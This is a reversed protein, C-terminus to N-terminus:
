GALIDALDQAIVEPQVGFTWVARITGEDDVAYLYPTHFASTRGNPLHVVGYDAGFADGAVRLAAEDETRLAHADPIFYQVYDTITADTDRGPDVTVMAVEVRGADDGLEAMARRLDAMTTPCVDPCSTYGFYVALVHGTPPIMFFPDGDNSADPLSIDAVSNGVQTPQAAATTSTQAPVTATTTEVPGGGAESCAACMLAAAFGVAITM